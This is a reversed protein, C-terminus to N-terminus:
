LQIKLILSRKKLKKKEQKLFRCKQCLNRPKKLFKVNLYNGFSIRKVSNKVEREKQITDNLENIEQRKEILHFARSMDEKLPM